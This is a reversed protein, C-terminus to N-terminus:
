TIPKNRTTRKNEEHIPKLKSVYFSSHAVLTTPPQLTYVNPEPKHIIKYPGAYKPIFRNALTRLMKFDKINLWM